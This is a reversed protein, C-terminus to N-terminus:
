EYRIELPAFSEFSGTFNPVYAHPFSTNIIALSMYTKLFFVCNHCKIAKFQIETIVAPNSVIECYALLDLEM